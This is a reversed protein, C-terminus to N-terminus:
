LLIKFQELVDFKKAAQTIINKRIYEFAPENFKEKIYKNNNWVILQIIEINQKKDQCLNQKYNNIGLKEFKQVKLSFKLSM